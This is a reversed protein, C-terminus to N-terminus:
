NAIRVNACYVRSSGCRARHPNVVVMPVPKATLRELLMLEYGGAAREHNEVYCGAPGGRAPVM